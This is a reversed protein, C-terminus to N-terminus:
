FFPENRVPNEIRRRVTEMIEPVTLAELCRSKESGACGKKRCPVCPWDKTVVSHGGGRPAWSAPSSPGFIAVTPTGTAAAIHLGASDIGVFLDCRQLVAPLIGMGTRGALNIVGAGAAAAIRAAADRENPAGILFVVAPPEEKLARALRINKEPSLAKYPWLSFPAFAIRPRNTPPSLRDLLAAAERHRSASPRIEPTFDVPTIGLFRLFRAYYEGIYLGPRYDFDVTHTFLRNRWLRGDEAFLGIRRPAGSLYALIAGRDDSRFDLVTDFRRKRLDRFFAAMRVANMPSAVPQKRISVVGDAWPCDRILDAAKDRVALHIAAEPLRQKLTRVAPLTLVVDGIDGLQILLIRERRSKATFRPM